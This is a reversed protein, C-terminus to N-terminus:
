TNSIGSEGQHSDPGEGEPDPGPDPLDGLDLTLDADLELALAAAAAPDAGTLLLGYAHRLAGCTSRERAPHRLAKGALTQRRDGPCAPLACLPIEVRGAAWLGSLQM